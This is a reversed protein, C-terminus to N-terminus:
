AIAAMRAMSSELRSIASIMPTISPMAKWVLRSASLAPDFRRARAIRALAKGHDGILHARQRL